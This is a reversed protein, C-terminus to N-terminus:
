DEAVSIVDLLGALCDALRPGRPGDTRLALDLRAPRHSDGALYQLSVIEAQRKRCLNVVRPLADPQDTLDLTFRRTVCPM